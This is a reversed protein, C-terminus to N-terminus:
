RVIAMAMALRTSMLMHALALKVSAQTLFANWTEERQDSQVVRVMPLNGMKRWGSWMCMVYLTQSSASRLGIPVQLADRWSAERDQHYAIMGILVMTGLDLLRSDRQAVSELLGIGAIAVIAQTMVGSRERASWVICEISKFGGVSELHEAVVAAAAAGGTRAEGTGLVAADLPLCMDNVCADAIQNRVFVLCCRLGDAGLVGLGGSLGSAVQSVNDAPFQSAIDTEGVQRVLPV